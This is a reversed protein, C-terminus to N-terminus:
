VKVFRRVALLSSFAGTVIGAVLVAGLSMLMLNINVPLTIIGGLWDLLYPTAYQLLTFMGLWGFLGGWFGYNMGEILFPGNIYWNSAGLLRQIKIERHKNKIKMSIIISLILISLLFLFSVIGIGILRVYKVWVSLEDVVDGFFSMDEVAPESELIQKLEPLYAIDTSSIEISPPLIKYDVLENLIPEDKNEEKYIQEAEKTSTYKFDALKGTDELKAKIRDIDEQPLDKGKEFFAIAQPSKEIFNLIENSGVSILGFVSFAFFTLSLVLIAVLSQYPTRRSQSFAIKFVKM